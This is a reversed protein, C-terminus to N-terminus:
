SCFVPHPPPTGVSYSLFLCISQIEQRTTRKKEEQEPDGPPLPPTFYWGPWVVWAMAQRGLFPPSNYGRAPLRSEDNDHLHRDTHTHPTSYHDALVGLIIILSCALYSYYPSKSCYLSFFLHKETIQGLLTFWTWLLSVTLTHHCYVAQQAHTVSSFSHGWSM